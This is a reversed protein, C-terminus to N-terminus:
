PRHLAGLGEPAVDVRREADWADLATAVELAETASELQDLAALSDGVAEKVLDGVTREHEVHPTQGVPALTGTRSVTGADPTPTGAPVHLLTTRGRGNEGVIAPRSGASVTVDAGSRVTREGPRVVAGEARVHAATGAPLDRSLASVPSSSVTRLM